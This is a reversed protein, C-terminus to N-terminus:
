DGVPSASDKGERFSPAQRAKQDGLAWDTADLPGKKRLAEISDHLADMAEQTKPPLMGRAYLPDQAHAQHLKELTKPGVGPLMGLLHTLAPMDAPNMAVRMAAVLMRAEARKLLDIGQRM